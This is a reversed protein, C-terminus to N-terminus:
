DVEFSTQDQPSPSGEGVRSHGEPCEGTVDAASESTATSKADEWGLDAEMAAKSWGAM